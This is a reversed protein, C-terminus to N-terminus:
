RAGGVSSALVDRAEALLAHPKFPKTLYRTAGAKLAASEVRAYEVETLKTGLSRGRMPAKM